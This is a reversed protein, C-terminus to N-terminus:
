DCEDELWQGSVVSWQGSVVASTRDPRNPGGKHPPKAGAVGGGLLMGGRGSTSIPSLHRKSLTGGSWTGVAGEYGGYPRAEYWGVGALLVRGCDERNGCM